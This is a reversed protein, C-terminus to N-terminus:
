VSSIGHAHLCGPINWSNFSTLMALALLPYSSHFFPVPSSLPALNLDYLAKYDANLIQTKIRGGSPPTLSYLGVFPM